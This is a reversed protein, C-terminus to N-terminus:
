NIAVHSVDQRIAAVQLALTVHGSVASSMLLSHKPLMVLKNVQLLPDVTFICSLLSFFLQLRNVLRSGRKKQRVIYFM